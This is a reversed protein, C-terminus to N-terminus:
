HTPADDRGGFSQLNSEQDPCMGLSHTQDATLSLVRPARDIDGELMLTENGEEKELDIFM